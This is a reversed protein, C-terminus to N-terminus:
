EVKSAKDQVLNKDSGNGWSNQIVKKCEEGTTWIAEFKFEKTRKIKIEKWYTKVVLPTHNSGM